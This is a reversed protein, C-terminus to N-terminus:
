QGAPAAACVVGTKYHVAVLYTNDGECRSPGRATGHGGITDGDKYKSGLPTKFSVDKMGPEAAKVYTCMGKKTVAGCFSTPEGLALASTASLGFLAAVSCAILIQKHM